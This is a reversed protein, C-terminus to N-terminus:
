KKPCSFFRIHHGSVANMVQSKPEYDSAFIEPYFIVIDNPKAEFHKMVKPDTTYGVATFEDRTAEASLIQMFNVYDMLDNGADAFNEFLKSQETAFFGIITIDDRVFFRQAAKITDLKKAAPQALEIMHKAIGSISITGYDKRPLM